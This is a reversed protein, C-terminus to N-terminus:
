YVRLTIINTTDIPWVDIAIRNPSDKKWSGHVIKVKVIDRVDEDFQSMVFDVDFCYNFQWCERIMPDGLIDRLRITDVNNGSSPPFDRIHTLQFPSRIIRRERRPFGPEQSDSIDSVRTTKTDFIYPTNPSPQRHRFRSPPTVARHLSALCAHGVTPAEVDVGQSINVVRQRKTPRDMTSSKKFRFFVLSARTSGQPFFRRWSSRGHCCNTRPRM